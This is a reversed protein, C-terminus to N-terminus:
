PLERKKKFRMKLNRSCIRINWTNNYELDVNDILIASHLTTPKIAIMDNCQELAAVHICGDDSM